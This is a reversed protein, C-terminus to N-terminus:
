VGFHAPDVNVLGGEGNYNESCIMFMEGYRRAHSRCERILAIDGEAIADRLIQGNGAYTIGDEEDVLLDRKRISKLRKLII